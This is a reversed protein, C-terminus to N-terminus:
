SHLAVLKLLSVALTSTKPSSMWGPGRAGGSASKTLPRGRVAIRLLVDRRQAQITNSTHMWMPVSM